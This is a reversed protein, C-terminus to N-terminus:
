AARELYSPTRKQGTNQVTNKNKEEDEMVPYYSPSILYKHEYEYNFNVIETVM